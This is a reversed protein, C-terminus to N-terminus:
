ALPAPLDERRTLFVVLRTQLDQVGAPGMSVLRDGDDITRRDVTTMLRLDAVADGLNPPNRLPVLAYAGDGFATGVTEDPLDAVVRVPAVLVRRKKRKKDLDCSHSLVVVTSVRCRALCLDIDARDSGRWAEVGRPATFRELPQFPVAPLALPVGSVLDGQSLQDELGIWM